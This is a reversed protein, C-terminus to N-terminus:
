SLVEEALSILTNRDAKFDTSTRTKAYGLDLKTMLSAGRMSAVEHWQDGDWKEIRAWAQQVYTDVHIRVRMVHPGITTHETYDVDQGSGEIRISTTM